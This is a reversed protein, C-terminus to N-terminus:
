GAGPEPRGAVDMGARDDAHHCLSGTGELNLPLGDLMEMGPIGKIFWGVLTNRLKVVVSGAGRFKRCEIQHAAVLLLKNARCLSAVM